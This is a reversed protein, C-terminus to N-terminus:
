PAPTPPTEPTQAHAPPHPHPHRPPYPLHLPPPSPLPFLPFLIPLYFPPSLPPLPPYSHNLLTSIRVVYLSGQPLSGAPMGYANLRPFRLTHIYAHM